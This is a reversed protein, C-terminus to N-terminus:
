KSKKRKPESETSTAKTIENNKRSLIQAKRLKAIRDAVMKQDKLELEEFEPVIPLPDNSREWQGCWWQRADPTLPEGGYKYGDFTLIYSDAPVGDVYHSHYKWDPTRNRMCAGDYYPWPGPYHPNYQFHDCNWCSIKEPEKKSWPTWLGIIEYLRTSEEETPCAPLNKERTREFHGCWLKHTDHIGPFYHLVDDYVLPTTPFPFGDGRSYDGPPAFRCQGQNSNPTPGAVYRQFHDCNWCVSGKSEKKSNVYHWLITPNAM